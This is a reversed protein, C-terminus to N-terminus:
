RTGHSPNELLSTLKDIAKEDELIEILNKTLQRGAFLSLLPQFFILANQTLGRLPRHSEIFFLVLDEVKLSIIMSATQEVINSISSKAEPNTTRKDTTTTNNTHTPNKAAMNDTPTSNIPLLNISSRLQQNPSALNNM